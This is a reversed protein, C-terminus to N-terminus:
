RPSRTDPESNPNDSSALGEMIKNVADAVVWYPTEASLLFGTTRNAPDWVLYSDEGEIRELLAEQFAGDSLFEDRSGTKLGSKELFALDDPNPVNSDVVSNILEVNETSMSSESIAQRINSVVISGLNNLEEDEAAEEASPLSELYNGFSEAIYAHAGMSLDASQVEPHSPDVTIEPMSKLFAILLEHADNLSQEVYIVEQNEIESDPM